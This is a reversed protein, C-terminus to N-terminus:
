DKYPPRRGDARGDPRQRRLAANIDERIQHAEHSIPNHRVLDYAVALHRSGEALRHEQIAALGLIRYLQARITIRKNEDLLELGQYCAAEARQCDGQLLWYRALDKLAAAEREADGLTAFAEHCTSLLAYAETHNGMDLFISALNQRAMHVRPHESAAFIELAAQTWRLAEGFEQMVQCSWGLGLAALAWFTQDEPGSCDSMAQKYIAKATEYERLRNHVTGLYVGTEARLASLSKLGSAYM